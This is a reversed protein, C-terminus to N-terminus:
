LKLIFFYITIFARYRRKSKKYFACIIVFAVKFYVCIYIIPVVIHGNMVLWFVFNFSVICHVSNEYFLVFFSQFNFSCFFFCLLRGCSEFDFSFFRLLIRALKSFFLLSDHRAQEKILCYYFLLRTSFM